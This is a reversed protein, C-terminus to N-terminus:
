RYYPDVQEIREWLLLWQFWNMITRNDKEAIIAGGSGSALTQDYMDNNDIDWVRYQSNHTGTQHRNFRPDNLPKAARIKSIISDSVSIGATTDPACHTLWGALGSKALYAHDLSSSNGYGPAFGSWSALRRNIAPSTAAVVSGGAGLSYGTLHVRTMDVQPITALLNLMATIYTNNWLTTLSTGTPYPNSYYLQPSVVFFESMVGTRPHAFSPLIGGTSPNASNCLYPLGADSGQISLVSTTNHVNSGKNQGHLFIIAPQKKSLDQPTYLLYPIRGTPTSQGTLQAAVNAM